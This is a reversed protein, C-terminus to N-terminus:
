RTGERCKRMENAPVLLSVLTLGCLLGCSTLGGRMGNSELLMKMGRIGGILYLHIVLGIEEAMVKLRWKM